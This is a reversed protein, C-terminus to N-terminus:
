SSFVKEQDIKVAGERLITLRKTTTDVVTSTPRFPLKGVDIVLDIQNTDLQDLAEKINYPTTNGSVNASTSTYPFEVLKSIKAIVCHNPQRIGVKPLGATVLDPIVKRKRVLLTLAGPFYKETLLIARQNLYVYKRAHTLNRVVLIMPKYGRRKLTILKQLAVENIASVALGYATDTPHLVIGGNTLVEAAIKDWHKTQPTIIRM